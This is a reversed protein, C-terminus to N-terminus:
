SNLINKIDIILLFLFVSIWIISLVLNYPYGYGFKIETWSSDLAIATGLVIAFIDRFIKSINNYKKLM